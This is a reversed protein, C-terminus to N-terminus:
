EEPTEQSRYEKNRGRQPGQTETHSLVILREEGRDKVLGFFEILEVFEVFKVFGIFGVV